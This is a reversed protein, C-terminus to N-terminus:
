PTIQGTCIGWARKKIYDLSSLSWRALIAQNIKKFDIEDEDRQRICYAFTLAVVNRTIKPNAIEELIGEQAHVLKFHMM